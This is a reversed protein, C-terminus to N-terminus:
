LDLTHIVEHATFGLAEFAGRARTNNALTKLKLQQVGHGQCHGMAATILAQAIGKKRHNPDVVLDTVDGVTKFADLLHLDAADEETLM